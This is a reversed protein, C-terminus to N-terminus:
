IEQNTGDSFYRIKNLMDKVSSQFNFLFYLVM